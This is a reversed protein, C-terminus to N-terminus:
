KQRKLYESLARRILEAVSLGTKESLIKLASIM